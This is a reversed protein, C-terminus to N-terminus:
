IIKRTIVTPTTPQRVYCLPIPKSSIIQHDHTRDWGSGKLLTNVCITGSEVWSILHADPRYSHTRHTSQVRIYALSTDIPPPKPSNPTGHGWIDVFSCFHQDHFLSKLICQSAQGFKLTYNM